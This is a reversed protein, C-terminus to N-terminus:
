LSNPCPQLGQVIKIILSDETPDDEPTDEHGEGADELVDETTAPHIIDM